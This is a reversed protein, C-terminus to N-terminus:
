ARAALAEIAAAVAAPSNVPTLHRAAPIVTPQPAGIRAATQQPTDQTYASDDAGFVVSKPVPLSALAALQQPPLGPVGLNLMAWLSSEAGPVQLPRRWQALGASDLRPCTPGCMNSYVARIVADTHLVLRLLTTRYPEIFLKTLLTKQGAGTALGDGDLFMIGGASSPSRLTAAAVIAAGSSHGVLIPRDLHLAAIFGLLQTSQHGLDFPAVRQTYGWGDLDLAYVRHGAAALMPAPGQWTDASEIFGHVLVIPTGTTGWQRYRTSIDGTQVYTLGAPVSARQNTALDFCASFATVGLLLVAAFVAIRRPWTRRRGRASGDARVATTGSGDDLQEEAEASQGGVHDIDSASEGEGEGEGEPETRPEDIDAPPSQDSPPM